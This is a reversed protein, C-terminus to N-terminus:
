SLVLNTCLYTTIKKSSWDGFIESGFHIFKGQFDKAGNSLRDDILFDGVCLDKRHTLILRKKAKEGFHKKIWIRKSKYSEPLDSMPTSLFYVDFLDFLLNVSEISGPIPELNEFINPHQQCLADVADSDKENNLDLKPNLDFIGKKFDAVVGDMDIYLIQKTM